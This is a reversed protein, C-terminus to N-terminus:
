AQRRSLVSRSLSSAIRLAALASNLLLLLGVGLLAPMVAWHQTPSFVVANRYHPLAGGHWLSPVDATKGIRWGMGYSFGEAEAGPALLQARSSPTLLRESAPHDGMLAALFKSLDEASSIRAATPLRGAEEALGAEVPVGAWLRHGPILGHARAAEISTFSNAMELPEFLHRQVYDGFTENSVKEVLLGLILYNASSNRHKTGAKELPAVTRLARVPEELTFFTM